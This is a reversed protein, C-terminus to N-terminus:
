EGRHFGSQFCIERETTYSSLLFMNAYQQGESDRAGNFLLLCHCFCFMFNWKSASLVSYVFNLVAKTKMNWSSCDKFSYKEELSNRQVLPKQQKCIQDTNYILYPLPLITGTSRKISCWAMFAYRAPLDPNQHEIGPPLQSNTELGCRGSRSQPGCLRRDLPYWPSKGQPYFRGPRSASLEVRDLTSSLFSHIQLEV